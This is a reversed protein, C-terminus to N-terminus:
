WWDPRDTYDSGWPLPLQPAPLPWYSPSPSAPPWIRPVQPLPCRCALLQSALAAQPESLLAVHGGPVVARETAESSHAPQSSAGGPRPDPAPPGSLMRPELLAEPFHGCFLEGTLLASQCCTLSELAGAAVRWMGTLLAGPGVTARAAAQSAQRRGWSGLSVRTRFGTLVGLPLPVM